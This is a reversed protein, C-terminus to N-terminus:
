LSRLIARLGEESVMKAAKRPSVWIRERRDAEPFDKETKKVKLRYVSLICPEEDGSKSIKTTIYSGMPESGVVAEKVGAEEWAEIAAARADSKGDMPWGKPLIWRGSSSTVLLVEPGKKGKRMCLAALQEHLPATFPAKKTSRPEVRPHIM